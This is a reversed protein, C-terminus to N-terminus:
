CVPPSRGSVFWSLAGRLWGSDPGSPEAGRAVPDAASSSAASSATVAYVPGGYQGCVAHFAVHSVHAAPATWAFKTAGKTKSNQYRCTKTDFESGSGKLEGASAAIKFALADGMALSVTYTKCPEFAAPVGSLACVAGGAPPATLTKVRMEGFPAGPVWSAFGDCKYLSPFGAATTTATTVLASGAATAAAAAAAELTVVRRGRVGRRADLTM